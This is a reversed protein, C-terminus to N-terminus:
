EDHRGHIAGEGTVRAFGIGLRRLDAELNTLATAAAQLLIRARHITKKHARVEAQLAQHRELLEARSPTM